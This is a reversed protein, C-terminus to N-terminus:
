LTNDDIYKFRLANEKGAKNEAEVQGIQIRSKKYNICDIWLHTMVLMKGKLHFIQALSHFSGRVKLIVMLKESNHCPDIKSYLTIVLLSIEFHKNWPTSSIRLHSMELNYNWPTYYGRNPSGCKVTCPSGRLKTVGKIEKIVVM